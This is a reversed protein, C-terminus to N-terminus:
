YRFLAKGVDVVDAHSTIGVYINTGSCSTKPHTLQAYKSCRDYLMHPTCYSIFYVRFRLSSSVSRFLSPLLLYMYISIVALISLYIHFPHYLILAYSYHNILTGNVQTDRSISSVKALTHVSVQSLLDPTLNYPKDLHALKLLTM